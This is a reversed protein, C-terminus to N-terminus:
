FANTTRRVTCKNADIKPPFRQDRALRVSLFREVLLPEAAPRAASVLRIRSCCRKRSECCRFVTSCNSSLMTALSRIRKRGKAVDLASALAARVANFVTRRLEVRRADRRWALVSPGFGVPEVGLVQHASEQPPQVAFRVMAVARGKLNNRDM